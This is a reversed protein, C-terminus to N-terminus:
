NSREVARKMTEEKGWHLCYLTSRWDERVFPEGHNVFAVAVIGDVIVDGGSSPM